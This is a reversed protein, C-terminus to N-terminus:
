DIQLMKEEVNNMQEAIHSLRNENTHGSSYKGGPRLMTKTTQRRNLGNVQSLIDTSFIQMEGAKAAVSMQNFQGNSQASTNPETMRYTSESERSFM